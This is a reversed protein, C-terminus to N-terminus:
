NQRSLHESRKSLAKCFDGPFHKLREGQPPFARSKLEGAPAIRAQRDASVDPLLWSWHAYGANDYLLQARVGLAEKARRLTALSLSLPICGEWLWELPLALIRSVPTLRAEEVHRRVTDPIAEADPGEAEVDDGRCEDDFGDGSADQAAGEKRVQDDM